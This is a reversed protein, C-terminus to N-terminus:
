LDYTLTGASYVSHVNECKNTTFITTHTQLLPRAQGKQSFLLSITKIVTSLPM